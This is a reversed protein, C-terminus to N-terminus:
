KLVSRMEEDSALTLAKEAFEVMMERSIHGDKIGRAIPLLIPAFELLTNIIESADDVASIVSDLTSM